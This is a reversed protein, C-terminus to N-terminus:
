RPNNRGLNGQDNDLTYNESVGSAAIADDDCYNRSHWENEGDVIFDLICIKGKLCPRSLNFPDIDGPKFSTNEKRENLHKKFM